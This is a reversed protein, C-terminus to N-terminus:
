RDSVREFVRVDDATAVYVLRWKNTYAQVVPSVYRWTFFAPTEMILYRGSVTDLLREETAVNAELPPMVSKLGTRLYVWQPMAAVVVDGPKAWKGVWTIAQDMAVLEKGYFLQRYAIPNNTRDRVDSDGLYMTHVQYFAVVEHLLMMVLLCTCTASWGFRLRSFGAPIINQVALMCMFLGLLLVPFLPSLYRVHQAPWPAAMAAFITALVYLAIFWEHHLLLVVFGALVMCGLGYLFVSDVRSPLVRFHLFKNIATFQLDWFSKYSTMTEGVRFPVTVLHKAIRKLVDPGSTKGLEPRYPDKYVINRAYSVNPHLYDARQYEYATRAYEGSTEVARVYSQWVLVCAASIISRLAARRFQRKLVADGIWATFLAIGITRSFFAATAAIASMAETVVSWKDYFVLLFVVTAVTFCVDASLQNFNLYTPLNFLCLLAGVKAWLRPVCKKLFVYVAGVTFTSLLFWSLKLWTAVIFPDATGLLKEHLAIIAPLLPPYQVSQIEGPENLLRYGTGQALSTGLVYYVSSDWRLDLPGHRRPYWALASLIVVLAFFATDRRIIDTWKTLMDENVYTFVSIHGCSHPCQM